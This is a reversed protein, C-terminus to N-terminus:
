TYKGLIEKSILQKRYSFERFEPHCYPYLVKESYDSSAYLDALINYSVFRFRFVSFCPRWFLVAILSITLDVKMKVENKKSSICFELCLRAFILFVEIDIYSWFNSHKQFINSAWHQM